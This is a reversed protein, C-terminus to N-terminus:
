AAAAAEAAEADARTYGAHSAASNAMAEARLADRKANAADEEATAAKEELKAIRIKIAAKATRYGDSTLDIVEDGFGAVIKASYFVVVIQLLRTFIPVM